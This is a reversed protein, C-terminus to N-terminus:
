SFVTELAADLDAYGGEHGAASSAMVVYDGESAFRADKLNNYANPFETAYNANVALISDRFATLANKVDEARGPATQVVIVIGGDEQYTKSQAGAVSVIDAEAVESQGLLDNQTFEVTGNLKAATVLSGLMPQVNGASIESSPAVGGSTSAPASVSAVPRSAPASPAVSQAPSGPQNNCGALLLLAALGLLPKKLFNM